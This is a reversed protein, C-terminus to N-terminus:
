AQFRNGIWTKGEESAFFDFAYRELTAVEIGREEAHKSLQEVYDQYHRWEATKYGLCGRAINTDYIPLASAGAAQAWFTAHKSAFSIGWFDIKQSADQMRNIREKLDTKSAAAEAFDSYAEHRFNESFGGDRVYINRGAVGGWLQVWHFLQEILQQSSQNSRLHVEMRSVITKALDEMRTPLGGDDADGLSNAIAELGRNGLITQMGKISKRLRPGDSLTQTKQRSPPEPLLFKGTEHRTIDADPKLYM